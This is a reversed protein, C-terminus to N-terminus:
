YYEVGNVMITLISYIYKKNINLKLDDDAINCILKM